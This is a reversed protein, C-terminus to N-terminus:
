HEQVSYVAVTAINAWNVMWESSQLSESDNGQVALLPSPAVTELFCLHLRGLTSLM